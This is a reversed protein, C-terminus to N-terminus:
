KQFQVSISVSTACLVTRERIAYLVKSQLMLRCEQLRASCIHGRTGWRCSFPDTIWNWISAQWDNAGTPLKWCVPSARFYTSSPKPMTCSYGSIVFEWSPEHQSLSAQATPVWLWICIKCYELPFWLFLIWPKLPLAVCFVKLILVCAKTTFFCMQFSRGVGRGACKMSTLPSPGVAVIPPLLLWLVLLKKSETSSYSWTSHLFPAEEEEEQSGAWLLTGLAGLAMSFCCSGRNELLVVWLEMRVKCCGCLSPLM